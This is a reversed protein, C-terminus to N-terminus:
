PKMFIGMSHPFHIRKSAQIRGDSASGWCASAFDGFGDMSMVVAQDFESFSYASALHTLHHEVGTVDAQMRDGGPMARLLDPITARRKRQRIRGLAMPWASPTKLLFKLRQRHAVSADTNVAVADMDELTLGQDALCWAITQEPFGAWHKVRRFREEEAASM